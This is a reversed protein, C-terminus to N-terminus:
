EDWGAEARLQDLMGDLASRDLLRGRLVVTEISAADLVRLRPDARVILIDALRGEEIVGLDGPRGLGAAADFTAARLADMPTLGAKVLLELERHLGFGPALSGIGPGDTGAVIRVGARHCMGIFARRKEVGAAAAAELESPVDLIEHEAGLAEEVFTRKLLRNNAHSAEAPYLFLSDFEDTSLTPDLFVNAAALQAVVKAVHGGKLDVHRWVRAERATVSPSSRISDADEQTLVGWAELDVARIPSHEIVRMGAEVADPAAIASPVHGVVPVGRGRATRVLAQLVRASIGNYVKIADVSQDVLFAVASAARAPTDVIISISPSIPPDGDLIPGAFFLRPGMRKGSELDQRTQRLLTLPGGLDRVSTVGNAVYLALPVDRRSCGHVHM